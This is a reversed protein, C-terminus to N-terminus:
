AAHLAGDLEELTAPKQVVRQAFRAGRCSVGSYLVRRAAPQVEAARALVEDGTGDGLDFDSVVVDFARGALAALAEAVGGAVTVEHRLRLLRATARAVLPDDEVLLISMRTM